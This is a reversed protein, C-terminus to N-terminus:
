SIPKRGMLAGRQSSSWVSIRANTLNSKYVYVFILMLMLFILILILMLM